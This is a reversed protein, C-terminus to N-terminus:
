NAPTDIPAVITNICEILQDACSRFQDIPKGVPDAIDMERGTSQFNERAVAAWSLLEPGRATTHSNPVRDSLELLAAFQKLTFVKRLARPDLNVVKRRHEIEATLILDSAAVIAPTLLRTSWAKSPVINQQQLVLSANSDMGKCEVAHTGASSVSWRDAPHLDELRRRLLHEAMPSRCLNGTCVILISFPTSDM